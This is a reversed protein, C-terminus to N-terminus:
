NRNNKRKRIIAQVAVAAAIVVAALAALALLSVSQPAESRTDTETPTTSQTENGAAVPETDDRAETGASAMASSATSANMMDMDVTPMVGGDKTAVGSLNLEFTAPWTHDKDLGSISMALDGMQIEATIKQSVVTKSGSLQGMDVTIETISGDENTKIDTLKLGAISKVTMVKDQITVPIIVQASGDEAVTLTANKEVPNYPPFTGNTIHPNLPLGTDAKNFSINASVTYTGATLERGSEEEEDKGLRTGSKESGSFKAHAASLNDAAKDALEQSAATLSAKANKLALSLADVASPAVWVGATDVDSGDKSVVASALVKDVTSIAANLKDYNVGTSPVSQDRNTSESATDGGGSVTSHNQNTSGNTPKNGGAPASHNPSTSGSAADGGGSATSHDQHLSGSTPKGGATPVPSSQNAPKSAGEGATSPEPKLPRPSETAAVAGEAAFSVGSLDVELTLPVTWDVGLLTPFETCDKFVYIGSRDKLEVTIKTIRGKRSVSGDTTAYTESDRVSNTIIANSSGDIQQLTFVPNPVTVNLTMTGDSAVTLTANDSVPTTPAVADYGGLGLPNNGNTLYATVGPLQTNLKGPVYLNATVTYNKSAASTYGAPQIAALCVALAAALLFVTIRKIMITIL